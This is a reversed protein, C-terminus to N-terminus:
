MSDMGANVRSQRRWAGLPWAAPPLCLVTDPLGWTAREPAPLRCTALGALEAKSPPSSPHSAQGQLAQSSGETPPLLTALPKSAVKTALGWTLRTHRCLAQGPM